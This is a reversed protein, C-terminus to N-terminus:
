ADPLEILLLPHEMGHAAWDRPYELYGGAEPVDFVATGTVQYGSLYSQSFDTRPMGLPCCDYTEQIRQQGNGVWAFDEVRFDGPADGINKINLEVLLFFGRKPREVDGYSDTTERRYKMSRVTIRFTTAPAYDDRTTETSFEGPEGARVRVGQPLTPPSAGGGGENEGGSANGEPLEISLLPTKSRAPLHHPPYLLRGGKEPVDYVETDEAWHGPPYTQNLNFIQQEAICCANAFPLQEGSDAAWRFMRPEMRGPADGTNEIRLGVLAFYGRRPKVPILPQGGETMYSVSRVTIRFTTDPKDDALAETSFEGTEGVKLSVTEVKPAADSGDGCATAGVLVGVLLAAVATAKGRICRM